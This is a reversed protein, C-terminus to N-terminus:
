RIVTISGKHIKDAHGNLFVLKMVYVYVGPPVPEGKYIGDWKFHPDDAEFVKEGWRDFIMINIYKLGATNGYFRFYDNNGDANPTFANPTFVTYDDIVKASVTDQATCGNTDTALVTYTTYTTPLAVTNACRSCEITQSPSWSYTVFPSGNSIANLSVPQGLTVIGGGSADVTFQNLNVIMFLTDVMCGNADTVTVHYVGSTVKMLDQTTDGNNWQYTYPAVGGYVSLLINAKANACAITDDSGKVILPAVDNVMASSVANCGHADTVTLTYVGAEIHQLNASSSNNSWYYFYPSTGGVVNCVISGTATESCKVDTASLSLMLSDPQSVTITSLAASCGHADVVTVGYSGAAIAYATNGNAGNSWYYQYAPTGGV